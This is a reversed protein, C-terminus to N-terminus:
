QAQKQSAQANVFNDQADSYNLQALTLQYSASSSNNQANIFDNSAMQLTTELQKVANQSL